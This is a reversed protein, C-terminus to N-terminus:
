LITLSFANYVGGGQGYQSVGGTITFGDLQANADVNSNYVVSAENGLLITLNNVWNRESILTETNSFGGYIKVGSKMSFSSYSPCQYIGKAVWVEDGAVASTIGSQFNTYANTWSTGNNLGTATIDVYIIKAWASSTLFLSLFLTALQPWQLLIKM